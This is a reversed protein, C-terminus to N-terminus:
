KTAANATGSFTMVLERGDVFYAIWQESEHSFFALSNGDGDTLTIGDPSPYWGEVSPGILETVCADGKLAWISGEPLHTDTLEISCLKNGDSLQWLGKLEGASPLRLSSAM